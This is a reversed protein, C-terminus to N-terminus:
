ARAGRLAGDVTLAFPAGGLETPDIGLFLHHMVPNGVVTAEVIEDRAIGAERAAEGVLEDVAGRVRQTLEGDGGPNMMVYSVRSMLDEGFRIQPNMAGASAVVDGSALDCLHAAITTSGIDFALGLRARSLRAVPRRRRPGHAGGRHGEMRRRAVDEPARAVRGPARVGALGWQEELAAQLRRFDSTPDQMDPERVEVYHLRVVPDIAIAHAEARKRM